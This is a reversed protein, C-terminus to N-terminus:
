PHIKFPGPVLVIGGPAHVPRLKGWLELGIQFNDFNIQQQLEEPLGACKVSLNGEIEELYTKARLFKARTFTSEKKWAGLRVNDIDLDHSIDGLLHVSDTDSYLFNDYNNQAATIVSERAYATIFAAMPIYISDEVRQESTLYRIHNDHLIPTKDKIYPNMGFKGYLSNQMIKASERMGYDRDITAQAKIAYWKDIYADFLGTCARFKYGGLITTNYLDYHKKILEWDVSTCCLTIDHGNSDTQYETPSWPGPHKLQITPLHGPKITFHTTVIIIYLPYSPDYTYDGDFYVPSGFPLLKTRMVWPYMSNKDFVVGEGVIQGQYKPNVYCWGGKYSLKIDDYVQIPLVPYLRKFEDKGIINKYESLASSAQTNKTLGADFLKKLAKSVIIVDRRLYDIEEPTPVYGLPRPKDYDIEGKSEGLGFAKGIKRVPMHILKYSDLINVTVKNHKIWMSYFIGNGSILTGFTNNKAKSVGDTSHSFGHTFLWYIIAEGDFKLNHFYVTCDELFLYDFLEDLTTGWSFRNELGIECLGWEWVHCDNIDTTTELDGMYKPIKRTRM